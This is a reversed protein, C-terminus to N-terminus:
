AFFNAEIARFFEDIILIIRPLSLQNKALSLKLTNLPTNPLVTFDTLNALIPSKIKKAFKFTLFYKKFLM